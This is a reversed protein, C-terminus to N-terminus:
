AQNAAVAIKDIIKESPKKSSKEKDSSSSSSSSAKWSQYYKLAEDYIIYDLVNTDTSIMVCLSLGCEKAM